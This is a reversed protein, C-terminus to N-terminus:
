PLPCRLASEGAEWRAITREAAWADLTLCTAAGLLVDAALAPESEVLAGALDRAAIQEHVADAEVHEDFYGTVEEALGLRRMGNGYLRSPVSSTMELAALHGAVCGRLRRHLGFLSMVNVGALAIAPAHDVYAGYSDDLGVGRMTRAFLVAHVRDPDGGGYEDAQIEVLGAKAAGALRPIAWTHPDAEKLQYVSKLALLERVQEATARRAVYRSLSPGSDQAALDFLQAAFGARDTPGVGPATVRARLEAEVVGELVARVALLPPDWEWDDAVGTLGRYHLEYLCLLTLQTDDDELWSAPPAAVADAVAQAFGAARGDPAGARDEDGTVLALLAASMPGRPTPVPMSAAPDAAALHTATGAPTTTTM